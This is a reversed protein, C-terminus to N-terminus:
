PDTQKVERALQQQHSTTTGTAGQDSRDEEQAKTEEKKKPKVKPKKKKKKKPKPKKEKLEDLNIERAFLEKEDVQTPLEINASIFMSAGFGFGLHSGLAIAICTAWMKWPFRKGFSRGSRRAARDLRFRYVSGDFEISARDGVELNVAQGLPEAQGLRYHKGSADKPRELAAGEYTLRAIKQGRIKFVDGPYLVSVKRVVGFAVEVVELVPASDADGTADTEILSGLMDDISGRRRPPRSTTTLVVTEALVGTEQPATIVPAERVPVESLLRSLIEVSNDSQSVHRWRELRKNYHSELWAVTAGHSAAPGGTSALHAKVDEADAFQGTKLQEVLTRVPLWEDSADLPCLGDLVDSLCRLDSATTALQGSRHAEVAGMPLGVFLARGSTSLVVNDVTFPGHTQGAVHLTELGDVLDAVLREVVSVPLCGDGSYVASTHLQSLREAAEFVTVYAGPEVSLVREFSPHPTASARRAAAKFVAPLDGELASAVEHRLGLSQDQLRILSTILTKSEFVQGLIDYDGQTVKASSGEM